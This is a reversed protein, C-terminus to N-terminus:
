CSKTWEYLQVTMLMILKLVHGGGEFPVLEEESGREPGQRSASVQESVGRLHSQVRTAQPSQSRRSCLGTEDVKCCPTRKVGETASYRGMTAHDMNQKDMVQQHVRTYSGDRSIKVLVASSM